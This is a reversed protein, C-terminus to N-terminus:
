LRRRRGRAPRSASSHKKQLSKALIDKLKQVVYEVDEMSLDYYLPFSLAQAYYGEMNPFYESIDGCARQFCPHRYLPIYHVQVGVGEERLQAIVQARSINYYAFDIQMVCLHFATKADHDATFLRINPVEHLLRRYHSMLERRKVIFQDIRQLQSLGLAAQFDTFNYNCTLDQTEYYGNYQASVDARLRSPDREIGNNRFLRLRHYLDPDNTTVLGGEGTTITKAPHFSFITMQSWACCGVMQGDLYRSGLAHAADEIVVADPSRVMRDLRQMDVPIGAFHVPAIITKGRSSRREALTHEVQQLDLNGTDRDIDVLIPAAQRQMGMAVTAVFTNPTTILCDSASIKAAYGAALLASTGSNFAVAYQAGCYLAMAKEFAEVCAGRTIVDGSLARGVEAIDAANISQRAYPIFPRTSM